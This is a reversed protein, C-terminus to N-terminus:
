RLPEAAADLQRDRGLGHGDRGSPRGHDCKGQRVHSGGAGRPHQRRVDNDVGQARGAM